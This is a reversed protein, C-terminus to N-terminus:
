SFHGVYVGDYFEFQAAGKEGVSWVHDRVNLGDPTLPPFRMKCQITGWRTLESAGALQNRMVVTVLPTLNYTAKTAWLWYLQDSNLVGFSATFNLKGYSVETNLGTTVREAYPTVIAESTAFQWPRGATAYPFNSILATSDALIASQTVHGFALRYDGNTVHTIPM